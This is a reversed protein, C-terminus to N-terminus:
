SKKILVRTNERYWPSVVKVQLREKFEATLARHEKWGSKEFLNVWFQWPQENIHGVGGQGIPAASFLIYQDSLNCINKVLQESRETEIHEAVELCIVLVAPAEKELPETCDAVRINKNVSKPWYKVASQSGEYGSVAIKGFPPRFFNKSRLWHLIRGSGCGIDIVSRPRFTAIIASAIIQHDNLYQAKELYKRFFKDDYISTNDEL